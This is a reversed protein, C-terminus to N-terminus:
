ALRPQGNQDRKQVIVGAPQEGRELDLGISLLALDLDHQEVVAGAVVLHGLSHGGRDLGAGQGGPKDSDEGVLAAGLAAVAEGAVGAGSM